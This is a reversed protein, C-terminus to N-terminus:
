SPMACSSFPTPISRRSVLCAAMAGWRRWTTRKKVPRDAEEVYAPDALSMKDLFENGNM